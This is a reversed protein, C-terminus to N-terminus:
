DEAILYLTAADTLGSLVMADYQAQTLLQWQPVPAPGSTSPMHQVLDLPAAETHAKTVTVKFSSPSYPGGTSIAVTYVGTVLWVGVAGAPDLMQGDTGIVCTVKERLVLTSPAGVKQEAVAPTFTVKAGQPAIGDPYRDPDAPSDAVALLVRAVVYGYEVSSPLAM